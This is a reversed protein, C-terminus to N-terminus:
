SFMYLKNNSQLLPFILVYVYVVIYGFFSSIDCTVVKTKSFIIFIESYLM